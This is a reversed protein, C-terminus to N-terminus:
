CRTTYRGFFCNLGGGGVTTHNGGTLHVFSGARALPLAVWQGFGGLASIMTAAPAAEQVSIGPYQVHSSFMADTSYTGTSTRTIDVHSVRGFEIKKVRSKGAPVTDVWDEYQVDYDRGEFKVLGSADIGSPAEDALASLVAGPGIAAVGMACVAGLVMGTLVKRDPLIM